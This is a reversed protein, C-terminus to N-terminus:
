HGLVDLHEKKCRIKFQESLKTVGVVVSNLAFGFIWIFAEGNQIMICTM